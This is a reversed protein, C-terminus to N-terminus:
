RSIRWKHQVRSCWRTPPRKVGLFMNRCYKVQSLKALLEKCNVVEWHIFIRYRRCKGKRCSTTKTRYSIDRYLKEKIFGAALQKKKRRKSRWWIRKTERNRGPIWLSCSLATPFTLVGYSRSQIPGLIGSMIEKDRGSMRFFDSSCSFFKCKNRLATPNYTPIRRVSRLSEMFVEVLSAPDRRPWCRLSKPSSSGRPLQWQGIRGLIRLAKRM